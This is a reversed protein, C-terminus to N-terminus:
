QLARPTWMRRKSRARMMASAVSAPRLWIRTSSFGTGDESPRDGTAMPTRSQERGALIWSARTVCRPEMARGRNVRRPRKPSRPRASSAAWADGEVGRGLEISSLRRRAHSAISRRAGADSSSSCFTTSTLLPVIFKAPTRSTVRMKWGSNSASPNLTRQSSPVLQFRAPCRTARRSPLDLRAWTAGSRGGRCPTRPLVTWNLAVRTDVSEVARPGPMM